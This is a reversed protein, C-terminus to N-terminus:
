TPLQQGLGRAGLGRHRSAIATAGRPDFDAVALDQSGCRRARQPANLESPVHTERGSGQGEQSSPRPYTTLALSEVQPPLQGPCVHVPLEVDLFHARLTPNGALRHALVLRRCLPGRRAARSRQTPGVAGAGVVAVAVLTGALSTNALVGLAGLGLAGCCRRAASATCSSARAPWRKGWRAPGGRGPRREQQGVGPPRASRGGAGRGQALRPRGPRGVGGM